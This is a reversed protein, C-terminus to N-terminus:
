KIGLFYEPANTKPMNKYFIEKAEKEGVFNFGSELIELVVFRYEAKDLDILNGAADYEIVETDYEDDFVDICIVYKKWLFSKFTHESDSQLDEIKLYQFVDYNQTLLLYEQKKTLFSHEITYHVTTNSSIIGKGYVFYYSDEESPIFPLKSCQMKNDLSYVNSYVPLEKLFDKFAIPTKENVDHIEVISADYKIQSYHKSIIMMFLILILQQQKM